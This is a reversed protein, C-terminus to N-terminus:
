RARPDRRSIYTKAEYLQREMKAVTCERRKSKTECSGGPNCCACFQHSAMDCEGYDVVDFDPTPLRPIKPAKPPVPMRHKDKHSAHHRGDDYTEKVGPLMKRPHNGTHHHTTYADDHMIGSAADPDWHASQSIRRHKSITPGQWEPAEGWVSGDLSRATDKRHQRSGRQVPPTDLSSESMPRFSRHTRRHGTEIQMGYDSQRATLSLRHYRSRNAPDQNQMHPVGGYDGSAPRSDIPQSYGSWNERRAFPASLPARDYSTWAVRQDRPIGVLHEM